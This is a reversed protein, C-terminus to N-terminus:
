LGKREMSHSIIEKHASLWGTISVALVLCLCLYMSQTQKCCPARQIGRATGSLSTHFIHQETGPHTKGLLFFYKSNCNIATEHPFYILLTFGSHNTSIGSPHQKSRPYRGSPVEQFLLIM